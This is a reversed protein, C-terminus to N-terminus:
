CACRSRRAIATSRTASRGAAAASRVLSAIAATPAARRRRRAISGRIAAACGSKAARRFPSPQIFGPVTFASWLVIRAGHADRDAGIVGAKEQFFMQLLRELPEAVGDVIVAGVALRRDVVRRDADADAARDGVAAGIAADHEAAAALALLDGGVLHRADAGREAVIEVRRPQRALVVVGVDERHAAADDGEAEGVLDQREPQVRRELASAMLPAEILDRCCLPLSRMVVAQRGSRMEVSACARRSRDRSRRPADAVLQLALVAAELQDRRLVEDAAGHELGGARDEGVLVGFAIRAPAVVAAALEDVDDLARRDRAGLREEAGLVGVHLRVGARLGVHRHVERQELRAVGHEAHVERVAAVQRVAVRQIEGALEVRDDRVAHRLSSSRM